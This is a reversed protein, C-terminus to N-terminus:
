RDTSATGISRGRGDWKAWRDRPRSPDPEPAWVATTLMVELLYKRGRKNLERRLPAVNGYGADGVFPRADLDLGQVRDIRGLMLQWKTAFQIGQPM